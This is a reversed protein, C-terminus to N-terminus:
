SRHGRNFIGSWRRSMAHRQQVVTGVQDPEARDFIDILENSVPELVGQKFEYVERGDGMQLCMGSPQAEPRAGQCCLIWGHAELDERAAILSEWYTAENYVCAIGASAWRVAIVPPNMQVSVEINLTSGTNTVAALPRVETPRDDSTM